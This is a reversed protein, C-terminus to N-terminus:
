EAGVEVGLVEQVLAALDDPVQIDQSKAWIDFLEAPSAQQIVDSSVRVRLTEQPRFNLTLKLAGGEEAAQYLDDVPVGASPDATINLRVMADTIDGLAKLADLAKQVSDEAGLSVKAELYKRSPIDVWEIEGGPEFVAFRKDAPDGWDTRFISGPYVLDGSVVQPEHIHGLAGYLVKNRTFLEPPFVFENGLAYVNEGRMKTGSITGHSVVVFPDNNVQEWEGVITQLRATIQEHLDAEEADQLLARIVSKHLWPIAGVKVPLGLEAQTLLRPKSCVWINPLDLEAIPDIANASAPASDHNGVIVVTQIGSKSLRAMRRAFQQMVANPPNNSDFVDGAVLLLEVGREICQEILFDLALFADMGLIPLNDVGLRGQWLRGLHWDATHAIKM